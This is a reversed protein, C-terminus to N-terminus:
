HSAKQEGHPVHHNERAPYVILVGANDSARSVTGAAGSAAAICVAFTQNTTCWM